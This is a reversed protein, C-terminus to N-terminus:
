DGLRFLSSLMKLDLVCWCIPRPVADDDGNRRVGDVYFYKRKMAWDFNMFLFIRYEVM